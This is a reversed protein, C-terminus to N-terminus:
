KGDANSERGGPPRERERERERTSQREGVCVCVCVGVGGCVEGLCFGPGEAEATVPSM